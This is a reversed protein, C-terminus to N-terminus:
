KNWEFEIWKFHTNKKQGKEIYEEQVDEAKLWAEFAHIRVYSKIGCYASDSNPVYSEHTLAIFEVDSVNLEEKLGRMAAAVPKELYMLKECVLPLHQESNFRVTTKKSTHWKQCIERITEGPKLNSLCRVEAIAVERAIEADKQVLKSEGLMIEALLDQATKRGDNISPFLSLLADQVAIADNTCGLLESAKELNTKAIASMLNSMEEVGTTVVGAGIKKMMEWQNQTLKIIKGVRGPKKPRNSERGKLHIGRPM